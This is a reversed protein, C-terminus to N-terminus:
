RRLNGTSPGLGRPRSGGGGRALDEGMGDGPCAPGTVHLKAGAMWAFVDDRRFGGGPLALLQLLTRGAVRSTLPTVAAGNHAIGAASLQEHCLRAYPEPSAHLIAIRDLSTGARASEVVARVAARVEDDCDSVTIIRTRDTDVAEGLTADEALAGAETGGILRISRDVEADARADGTTGALVVVESHEAVARILRAGHRSLREPLYSSWGASLSWQRDTQASLRLLRTSCIRRTTGTRSSCSGPPGTSVFSMLPM